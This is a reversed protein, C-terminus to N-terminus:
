IDGKQTTKRTIGDLIGLLMYFICICWNAGDIDEFIMTLMVCLLCIKLTVIRRSPDKSLLLRCATAIMCILYISGGLIGAKYFVGIYTSHSGLPYDGLMDKIGIGIIPSKKWMISLSQGYIMSRMNNSGERMGMISELIKVIYSFGAVSILLTIVIIMSLLVFKREKYFKFFHNQTEFLFYALFLILYLMLGTRSNTSEVVLFLLATLALTVLTRGKLFILALAYFFLVAFVVLNAYDMYGLFRPTYLGNIWDAGSLAHGMINFVSNGKTLFYVLWLCILIGLNYLALKGLRHLDIPNHRCFHYMVLAVATIAWTNVAAFVRSLDHDGALTNVVIAIGYILLFAGQALTFKDLPKEKGTRMWMAAALAGLALLQVAKPLIVLIWFYRFLAYFAWDKHLRVGM